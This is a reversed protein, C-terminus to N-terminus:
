FNFYLKGLLKSKTNLPDDLCCLLAKSSALGMEILVDFDKKSYNKKIIKLTEKWFSDYDERFKKTINKRKLYILDGLSFGVVYKLYLKGIKIKEHESLKERKKLWVKMFKDLKNM